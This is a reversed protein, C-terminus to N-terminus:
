RQAEPQRRALDVSRTEPLAWLVLPIALLNVVSLAVIAHSTAALPGALWGVAAPGLVFGWRGLLNHSLGYAAARVDTPFLETTMVHGVVWVGLALQLLMWGAAISWVQTARFCFVTAATALSLLLVAARRRGIRDMLWGALAYGAFACALALPAVLQIERPTWGREEFVYYTFFFMTAASWFNIVLWVISMAIFRARLQPALLVQLQARLAPATAAQARGALWIEPERVSKWLLPLLLLPLAGIVFLSRWGHGSAIAPQLLMAPLAAGLSAAAGMLGSARGRIDAPLTESLLIYATSLQTVLCIRACLQLVVLQELSRVFATALTFLGFGLVAWLLVPRRGFRDSLRIAFFALVAGLGIVSLAPGLRAPGAAFERGVYPLVISAINTDFGEFLVVGCLLAFLLRQYANM